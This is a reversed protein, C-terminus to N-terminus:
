RYKMDFKETEALILEANFGKILQYMFFNSYNFSTKQM